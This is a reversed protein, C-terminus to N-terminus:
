KKLEFVVCRARTKGTNTVAHEGADHWHADGASWHVEIDGTKVQHSTLAYIIRAQGWHAPQHEDPELMVQTIRVHDNELLKKADQPTVEHIGRGATSPKSRPRSTAKRSVAVFRAVTEGVNEIEHPQFPHWGTQGRRWTQQEPEYNEIYNITYNSLAYVSHDGSGHLPLRDGPQLTYEIVWVHENEFVLQANQPAGRLIEDVDGVINAALARPVLVLGAFLVLASILPTRSATRYM